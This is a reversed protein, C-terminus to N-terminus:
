GASGATVYDVLDGVTTIRPLDADPITIAFERELTFLLDVLSMSDIGAEDLTSEATLPVDPEGPHLRLVFDRVLGHVQERTM